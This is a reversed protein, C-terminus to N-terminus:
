NNVMQSNFNDPTGFLRIAYDGLTHIKYTEMNFERQKQGTSTKKTVDKLNPQATSLLSAAKKPAAAERRGRAAEEVPLEYTRYAVCVFDKFTRLMIGLQKTSNELDTVTTETHLRLKAFGHWTALEFLLKRVITNHQRTPLLDKFALIACQLDPVFM